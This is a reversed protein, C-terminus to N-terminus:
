GVALAWILLLSSGNAIPKRDSSFQHQKCGSLLSQRSSIAAYRQLSVPTHVADTFVEESQAAVALCWQMGLTDVRTKGTVWAKGTVYTGLLLHVNDETATLVFVTYPNSECEQLTNPPQVGQSAECASGSSVASTRASASVM